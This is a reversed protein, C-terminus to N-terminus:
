PLLVGPGDFQGIKAVAHLMGLMSAPIKKVDDLVVFRNQHFVARLFDDETPFATVCFKEGFIIKGITTALFTKGSQLKGVFGAVPKETFISEFFLAYFYIILLLRQDEPELENDPTKGFSALSLWYRNLLSEKSYFAELSLGTPCQQFRNKYFKDDFYNVVKADPPFDYPVLRPCERFFVGDDGNNVLRIENEDIRYIGNGGNDWYMVHRDRDFYHVTQPTAERHSDRIAGAVAKQMEQRDPKKVKYYTNLLLDFDEGYVDMVNLESRDFFFFPGHGVERFGEGVPKPGTLLDDTVFQMLKVHREFETVGKETKIEIVKAIRPTVELRHDEVWKVAKKVDWILAGEGEGSIRDSCALYKNFFISRITAYNYGAGVLSDIISMDRGSKMTDKLRIPKGFRIMKKHRETIRLQSVAAQAEEESESSVICEREGFPELPESSAEPEKFTTDRYRAFDALTYTKLDPHYAAVTCLFPEEGPKKNITGPLRLCSSLDTRHTDAGLAKQM